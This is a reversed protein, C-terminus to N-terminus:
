EQFGVPSSNLTGHSPCTHTRNADELTSSWGLLLHTWSSTLLHWLGGQKLLKPNSPSTHARGMSVQQVRKGPLRWTVKAAEEEEQGVVLCAKKMKVSFAVSNRQSCGGWGYCRALPFLSVLFLSMKSLLLPLKWFNGVLSSFFFAFWWWGLRSLQM